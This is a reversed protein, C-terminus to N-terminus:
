CVLFNWSRGHSLSVVFLFSDREFCVPLLPCPCAPCVSSSLQLARSMRPSKSSVSGATLPLRPAPPPPQPRLCAGQFTIQLARYCLQALQHIQNSAASSARPTKRRVLSLPTPRCSCSTAGPSELRRIGLSIDVFGTTPFDCDEVESM